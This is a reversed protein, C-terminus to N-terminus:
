TKNGLSGSLMIAGVSILEIFAEMETLLDLDGVNSLAHGVDM